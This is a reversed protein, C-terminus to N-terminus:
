YERHPTSLTYKKRSCCWWCCCWFYWVMGLLLVMLLLLRLKLLLRMLVGLFLLLLRLMVLVLLLLLVQLMLLLLLPQMLIVPHQQTEVNLVQLPRGGIHSLHWGSKARLDNLYEVSCQDCKLKMNNYNNGNLHWVKLKINQHWLEAANKSEDWDSRTVYSVMYEAFLLCCEKWSVVINGWNQKDWFRLM